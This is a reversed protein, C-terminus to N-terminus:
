IAVQEILRRPTPKVPEGFGMRLILQPQGDKRATEAVKRRLGLLEIPQNLFSACVDESRARLLVRALARGAQIWDQETDSETFLIALAPSYLALDRDKAARGNGLDFTRAVLPGAHSLLDGLGIAYGPMGDRSQDRNPHMWAAIELRFQKSHWQLEDAEAILDALQFREDDSRVFHLESGAFHAEVELANMLSPPLPAPRFPKRNTRRKPIANFLIEDEITSAKDGGLRMTALLDPLQPDPLIQIQGAHGFRRISVALHEIAAGCSIFLERSHPDTVHCARTRDAYVELEGDRLRFMWPQSNHNSPAMVAYNLLFRLKDDESGNEPFDEARVSWIDTPTTM